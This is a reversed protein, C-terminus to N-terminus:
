LSLSPIPTIRTIYHFFYHELHRHKSQIQLFIYGLPTSPSLSSRGPDAVIQSSNVIFSNIPVLQSLVLQGPVLQGPVLQYRTRTPIHHSNANPVLQSAIM